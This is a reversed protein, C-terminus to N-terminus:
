LAEVKTQEQMACRPLDPGEDIAKGNQFGKFIAISDNANIPVTLLLSASKHAALFYEKRKCIKLAPREIRPNVM